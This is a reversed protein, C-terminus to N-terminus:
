NTNEAYIKIFRDSLDRRELWRSCNNKIDTIHWMRSGRDSIGSPMIHGRNNDGRSYTYYDTNDNNRPHKVMLLDEELKKDDAIEHKELAVRLIRLDNELIRFEACETKKRDKLSRTIEYILGVWIDSFMIQINFAQIDIDTSSQKKPNFDDEMIRLVLDFEGIRQVSILALSNPLLANIKYSIKLWNNHTEPHKSLAEFFAIAMNESITM